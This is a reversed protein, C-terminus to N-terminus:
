VHARGIEGEAQAKGSSDEIVGFTGLSGVMASRNASLRRAQSGVWYAASAGLDEFHAIVPKQADAARVEDALSQTGSVTGGPSDIVLLISRVQNDAVASRLYKRQDITSVGGFKSRGKQMAGTMQLVAVGADTRVYMVDPYDPDSDPDVVGVASVPQQQTARKAEPVGIGQWLGARIASLAGRLFNPEIAWLGLHSAFCKPTVPMTM